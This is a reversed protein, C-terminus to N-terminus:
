GGLSSEIGHLSLTTMWCLVFLGINTRSSEVRTIYSILEHLFSPLAFFCGFLSLFIMSFTLALVFLLFLPVEFIAEATHGSTCLPLKFGEFRNMVELGLITPVIFGFVRSWERVGEVWSAQKRGCFMARVFFCRFRVIDLWVQPMACETPWSLLGVECRGLLLSPELRGSSIATPRQASSIIGVKGLAGLLLDCSFNLITSIPFAEPRYNSHQSNPKM